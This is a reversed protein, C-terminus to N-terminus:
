AHPQLYWRRYTILVLLVAYQELATAIAGFQDLYFTLLVVTTLSCLLGFIALRMASEDKGRLLWWFAVLLICGVVLDLVIRTIFWPLDQVSSVEAQTVFGQWITPGIQPSFVALLLLVLSLLTLFSNWGLLLLILRRHWRQGIWQGWAIATRESRQLFNPATAVLDQHQRQLYDALREALGSFRVDTAQRAVDIRQTLQQQNAPGLNGDLLDPLLAVSRYLEGRPESQAPRRVVMYLLVSFLFLAYIIPAAPPYFYDNNVTLFKGVEDIFLGVGVGSLIASWLLARSDLRILPFLAAIYLLLGGWLVHAIHLNGGGLRPYGTMELYVRTVIVTAAFTEPTTLLYSEAHARKVPGRQPTRPVSESSIQQSTPM